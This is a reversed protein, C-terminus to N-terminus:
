VQPSGPVTEERDETEERNESGNPVSSMRGSFLLPQLLPTGPMANM